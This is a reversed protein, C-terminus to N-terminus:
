REAPRHEALRIQRALPKLDPGPFRVSVLGDAIEVEGDGEHWDNLVIRTADQGAVRHRHVDPRHTHGHIMLRCGHEAMAQCIADSNVDMINMPKVQKNEESEQRANQAQALREEEPLGLFSQQWQRSRLLPRSKMHEIDDSCYADGHALLIPVSGIRLVCPDNLLECGTVRCFQDGLLFDRNGHMVYISAGTNGSFDALAAVIEEYGALRFADDGIWYEFLDGLIILVDLGAGRTEIWQRFRRTIDTRAASLHLDSIFGIKRHTAIELSPIM